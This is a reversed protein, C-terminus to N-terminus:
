DRRANTEAARLSAGAPTREDLVGKEVVVSVDGADPGEKGLKHSLRMVHLLQWWVIVALVLCVAVLGALVRGIGRVIPNDDEASLQFFRNVAEQYDRDADLQMLRDYQSKSMFGKFSLRKKQADFFIHDALDTPLKLGVPLKRLKSYHVM